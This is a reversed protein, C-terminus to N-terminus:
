EDAKLRELLTDLVNDTSIGQRTVADYLQPLLEHLRSGREPRIPDAQAYQKIQNYADLILLRYLPSTASRRPSTTDKEVKVIYEPLAAQYVDERMTGEWSIKGELTRQHLLSVFEEMKSQAM